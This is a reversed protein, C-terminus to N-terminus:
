KISCRQNKIFRKRWNVPYNRRMKKTSVKIYKGENLEIDSAFITGVKYPLHNYRKPFHSNIERIYPSRIKLSQFFAKPQIRCKAVYLDIYKSPKIEHNYIIDKYALAYVLALYSSYFNRSAFGFSDNKFHKIIDILTPNSIGKKRLKRIGRLLLGTGNNYASVALDWRKLIKKNQALLHLASVTSILASKRHERYRDTRMFHKGIWPMFQWAGVANVKSRAYVNFSSELFPIALLEIPMQFETFYSEITTHYKELKNLGTKIKDKQGTQARLNKSLTYFFQKRLFSKKPIKVGARKLATLISKSVKDDYDKLGLAIMKKRFGKVRKAVEKHQISFKLHNNNTQRELEKFDLYDYVISLNKKDHFVSHNSTFQTYITYWFTVRDLILPDIYFDDNIRNDKDQLFALHHNLKIERITYLNKKLKLKKISTRDNQRYNNLDIAEISFIVFFFLFYRM